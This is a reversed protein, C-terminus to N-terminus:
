KNFHHLICDTNYMTKEIIELITKEDGGGLGAGILYPVHVQAQLANAYRATRMLAYLVATYDIYQKGDRGYFEQTIANAIHLDKSVQTYVVFGLVPMKDKKCSEIHNLYDVYIEPYKARLQKAVGSGMVGQANCGHVVVGHTVETINSNYKHTIM